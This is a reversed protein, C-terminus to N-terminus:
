NKGTSWVLDFPYRVRWIVSIVQKELDTYTGPSLGPLIFYFESGNKLKSFFRVARSTEIVRKKKGM